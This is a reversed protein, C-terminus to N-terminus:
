KRDIIGQDELSNVTEVLLDPDAADPDAQLETWGDFLSSLADDDIGAGAFACCALHILIYAEVDDLRGLEERATTLLPDDACLLRAVELSVLDERM